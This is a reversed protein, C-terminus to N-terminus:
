INSIKQFSIVSGCLSVGFSFQPLGEMLQALWSSVGGRIYPFTGESFLMIDVSDSVPFEQDEIM